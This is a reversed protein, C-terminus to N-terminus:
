WSMAQQLDAIRSDLLGTKALRDKTARLSELRQEAHQIQVDLNEGLTVEPRRNGIVQASMAQKAAASPNDPYSEPYM